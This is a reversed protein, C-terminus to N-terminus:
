KLLAMCCADFYEGGIRFANRNIGEMTFGCQEYLRRAAINDIRVSLEVRTLGSTWAEALTSKILRRGIGQGRRERLVGMGLTGVHARAEGHTPLIDCWGVVEDADLAVLQCLGNTRIHRCFAHAAETPPAQTFALFGGERAVADLALRMGEFHHEAPVVIDVNM